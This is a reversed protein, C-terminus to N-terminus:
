NYKLPEETYYFENNATWDLKITYSGPKLISGDVVQKGFADPHLDVRRDKAESTPCYFYIHGRVALHTMERPLHILVNRDQQEVRVRTRLANARATGDIIKQYNLEQNYYDNAVLEYRTNLCQYVLFGMMGIFAFIVFMLKYGWNIKM